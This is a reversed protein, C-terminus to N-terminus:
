YLGTNLNATPLIQDHMNASTLINTHPHATFTHTEGSMRMRRQQQSALIRTTRVRDLSLDFRQNRLWSPMLESLPCLYIETMQGVDIEQHGGFRQIFSSSGTLWRMFRQKWAFYVLEFSFQKTQKWSERQNKMIDSSGLGVFCVSIYFKWIIWTIQHRLVPFQPFYQLKSLTTSASNCRLMLQGGKKLSLVAYSNSWHRNTNTLSALLCSFSCTLTSYICRVRM